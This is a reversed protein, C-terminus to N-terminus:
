IMSSEAGPLNMKVRDLFDKCDLKFLELMLILEGATLRVEGHEIKTVDFESVELAEALKAREVHREEHLGKLTRGVALDYAAAKHMESEM